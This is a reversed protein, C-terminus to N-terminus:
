ALASSSVRRGCAAVPRLARSRGSATGRRSADARVIVGIERLRDRSHRGAPYREYTDPAPAPVDQTVEDAEAALNHSNRGIFLRVSGCSVATGCVDHCLDPVDACDVTSHDCCWDPRVLLHRPFCEPESHRDEDLLREGGIGGCCGPERLFAITAQEHHVLPAVVRADQRESSDSRISLEAVDDSQACLSHSPPVGMTTVDVVDPDERRVIERNSLLDQTANGLRLSRHPLGISRHRVEGPQEPMPGPELHVHTSRRDLVTSRDM